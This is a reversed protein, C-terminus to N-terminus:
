SAEAEAPGASPPPVQAETVSEIKLCVLDTRDNCRADYMLSTVEDAVSSPDANRPSVALVLQVRFIKGLREERM